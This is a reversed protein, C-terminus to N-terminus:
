CIHCAPKLDQQEGEPDISVMAVSMQQMNQAIKAWTQKEGSPRCM